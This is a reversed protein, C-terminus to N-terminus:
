MSKYFAMARDTTLKQNAANGVIYSDYSANPGFLKTYTESAEFPKYHGDKMLNVLVTLIDLDKKNREFASVLSPILSYADLDLVAQKINLGVHQVRGIEEKMLEVVKSKNNKLFQTERDSLGMETSSSPLYPFVMKEEGNKLFPGDCNQQFQEPHIMVYTYKEEFSLSNFQSDTLAVLYTDGEAIDKHKATKILTKVKALGYPPTTDYVRYAAYAKSTASANPDMQAFANVSVAVLGLLFLKNM